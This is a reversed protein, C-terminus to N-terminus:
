GLDGNVIGSDPNTVVVGALVASLPVMRPM